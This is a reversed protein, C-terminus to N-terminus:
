KEGLRERRLLLVCLIWGRDSEVQEIEVREVYDGARKGRGM